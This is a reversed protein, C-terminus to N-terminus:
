RRRRCSRRRARRPTGPGPGGGPTIPSGPARLTLAHGSAHVLLLPRVEGRELLSEDDGLMTLLEAEEITAVGLARADELKSGAEAGVVVYSTKKSVSGSVKGGAAKIRAEADGRKLTPLTGTLVFTKGAVGEVAVVTRKAATLVVGASALGELVRRVPPSDLEAFISDASKKGLGEIAGRESPDIVQVAGPQFGTRRPPKRPGRRGRTGSRSRAM